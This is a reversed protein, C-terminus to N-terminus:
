HIYLARTVRRQPPTLEEKDLIPDQWHFTENGAQERAQERAQEERAADRTCGGFLRPATGHRGDVRERLANEGLVIALAVAGAHRAQLPAAPKCAIRLCPRM